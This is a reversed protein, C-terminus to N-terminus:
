QHIYKSSHSPYCYRPPANKQRLNPNHWTLPEQNKARNYCPNIATEENSNAASCDDTQIRTPHPKSRKYSSLFKSSMSQMFAPDTLPDIRGANDRQNGFFHHRLRRRLAITAAICFHRQGQRRASTRKGSFDSCGYPAVPHEGNRMEQM